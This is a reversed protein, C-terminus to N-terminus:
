PDSAAQEPLQLVSAVRPAIADARGTRGAHHDLMAALGVADLGHRLPSVLWVRLSWAIAALGAALGILRAPISLRFWWDILLSAVALAAIVALGRAIGAVMLHTALRGSLGRLRALMAARRDGLSATTPNTSLTTM